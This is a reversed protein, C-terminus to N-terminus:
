RARLPPRPPAGSADARAVSASASSASARRRASRARPAPRPARAARALLGAGFLLADRARLARLRVHASPAHELSLEIALPSARRRGSPRAAAAARWRMTPRSSPMSSASCVITACRSRAPAARLRRELVGLLRAIRACRASRRPMAPARGGGTARARPAAASDPPPARALAPSRVGFIRPARLSAGRARRPPRRRSASTARRSFSTFSSTAGAESAARPPRGRDVLVSACSARRARAGAAAWCLSSSARAHRM